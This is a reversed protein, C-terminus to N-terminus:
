KNHKKRYEATAEEAEKKAKEALEEVKDEPILKGAEHIEALGDGVNTELPEINMM